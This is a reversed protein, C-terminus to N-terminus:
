WNPLLFRKTRLLFNTRKHPTLTVLSSSSLILMRIIICLMRAMTRADPGYDPPKLRIIEM